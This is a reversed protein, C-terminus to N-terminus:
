HAASCHHLQLLHARAPHMGCAAWLHQLPRQALLLPPPPPPPPLPLPLPLLPLPLLGPTATAAALSCLRGFVHAAAAALRVESHVIQAISNVFEM